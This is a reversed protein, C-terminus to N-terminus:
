TTSRVPRRSSASTREASRLIAWSMLTVCLAGNLFSATVDTPHHMGRYMRSTAVFIPMLLLAWCLWKAWTRHVLGALIVALGCYLAFAASTHGSPFSSTPPSNDLREVQPRERDIALTTFFFVIAQASVAACLFLPEYWSHLRWLLIAAAVATCGIIVSTSGILSGIETVLNGTSTRHAAFWRNIGDEVTFPWTHEAVRTILLGLAIMGLLLAILWPLIRKAYYGARHAAVARNVSM